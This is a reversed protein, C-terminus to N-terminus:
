TEGRHVNETEDRESNEDDDADQQRDVPSALSHADDHDGASRSVARAM